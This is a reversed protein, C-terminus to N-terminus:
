LLERGTGLGDLITPLQWPPVSALLKSRALAIGCRLAPPAASEIAIYEAWRSPIEAPNITRDKKRHNRQVFRRQGSLNATTM